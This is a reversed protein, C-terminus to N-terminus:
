TMQGTAQYAPDKQSVLLRRADSGQEILDVAFSDGRFAKVRVIWGHDGRDIQDSPLQRHMDIIVSSIRAVSNDVTLLGSGAMAVSGCHKGPSSAGAGGNLFGCFRFTVTTSGQLAANRQEQEAQIEAIHAQLKLATRRSSRM